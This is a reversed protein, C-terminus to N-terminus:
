GFLDRIMSSYKKHRRQLLRWYLQRVVPKGTRRARDALVTLKLGRGMLHYGQETQDKPAWVYCCTANKLECITDFLIGLGNSMGSTFRERAHILNEAPVPLKVYMAGRGSLLLDTPEVWVLNTSWGNQHLFEQFRSVAEEFTQPETAATM